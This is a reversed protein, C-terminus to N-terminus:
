GCRAAATVLVARGLSAGKADITFRQLTLAVNCLLSESRGYWANAHALARAKIMLGFGSKLSAQRFLGSRGPTLLARNSM